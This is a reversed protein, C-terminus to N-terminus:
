GTWTTSTAAEFGRGLVRYSVKRSTAGAQLDDITHDETCALGNATVGQTDQPRKTIINIM